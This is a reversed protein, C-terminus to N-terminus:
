QSGRCHSQSSFAVPWVPRSVQCMLVNSWNLHAVSALSSFSFGNLFPRPMGLCVLKSVALVLSILGNVSQCDVTELSMRKTM